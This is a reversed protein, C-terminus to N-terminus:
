DTLSRGTWWTCCSSTRGTAPRRLGSTGSASSNMPNRTSSSPASLSKPCSIGVGTRGASDKVGPIAKVGAVLALAKYVAPRLGQPLVPWKLPEGLMSYADYWEQATLDSIPKSSTGAGTIAPILKKPDTPLEKLKSWERPPWVGEGKKLTM